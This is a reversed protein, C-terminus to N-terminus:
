LTKDKLMNWIILTSLALLAGIFLWAWSNPANALINYLWGGGVGTDIPVGSSSDGIQSSALESAIKMSGAGAADFGRTLADNAAMKISWVKVALAAFASVIIAPVIGRMLRKPSIVIKKESVRYVPVFKGRSSLLARTKEILGARALKKVNYDVTTLPMKLQNSIESTSLEHEALLSLIRKSSKNTLVDALTGMRPDDLDIMVSRHAMGASLLASIYLTHLSCFFNYDFLNIIM